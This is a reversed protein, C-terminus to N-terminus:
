ALGDRNTFSGSDPGTVVGTSGEVILEEDLRIGFKKANNLKFSSQGSQDVPRYITRETVASLRCNSTM